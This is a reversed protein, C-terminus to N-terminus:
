DKVVMPSSLPSAGGLQQAHEACLVFARKSRAKTTESPSASNKGPNGVHQGFGPFISKGVLRSIALVRVPM